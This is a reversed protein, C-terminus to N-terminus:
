SIFFPLDLSDGKCSNEQKSFVGGNHRNKRLMLGVGNEPNFIQITVIVPIYDNGIKQFGIVSQNGKSLFMEAVWKNLFPNLTDAGSVLDQTLNEGVTQCVTIIGAPVNCFKDNLLLAKVRFVCVARM